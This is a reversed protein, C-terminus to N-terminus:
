LLEFVVGFWDGIKEYKVSETQFRLPRLLDEAVSKAGEGLVLLDLVARKPPAGCPALEFGPSEGCLALLVGMAAEGEEKGDVRVQWYFSGDDSRRVDICVFVEEVWLKGLLGFSEWSKCIRLIHHNALRREFEEGESVLEPEGASNILLMNEGWFLLGPYADLDRLLRRFAIVFGALQEKGYLEEAVAVLRSREEAIRCSFEDQFERCTPTARALDRLSLSGLILTKVDACLDGWQLPPTESKGPCLVM